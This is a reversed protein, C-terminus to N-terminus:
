TMYRAFDDTPEDSASEAIALQKLKLQDAKTAATVKGLAVEGDVILLEEGPALTALLEVLQTAVQDVSLVTM